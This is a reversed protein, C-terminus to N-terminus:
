LTVNWVGEEQGWNKQYKVIGPEPYVTALRDQDSYIKCLFTPKVPNIFFPGTPVGNADCLPFLVDENLNEGLHPFTERIEKANPFEGSKYQMRRCPDTNTYLQMLGRKESLFWDVSFLGINKTYRPQLQIATDCFPAYKQINEWFGPLFACTDHLYFFHTYHALIARGKKTQSFYIAANFDINVYPCFFVRAGEAETEAEAEAEGVVIYLDSFPIKAERASDLLTKRTTPFFGVCSNVIVAVNTPM